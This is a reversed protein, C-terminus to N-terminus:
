GRLETHYTKYKLWCSIFVNGQPPKDANLMDGVIDTPLNFQWRSQSPSFGPNCTKETLIREVGRNRVLCPRSNRPSPVSISRYCSSAAELGALGM